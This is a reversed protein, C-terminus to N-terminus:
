LSYEDDEMGIMDIGGNQPGSKRTDAKRGRKGRPARKKSEEFVRDWYEKSLKQSTLVKKIKGEADKIKVPYFM